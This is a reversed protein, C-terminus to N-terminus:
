TWQSRLSQWRTAYIDQTVLKQLDYRYTICVMVITNMFYKTLMRFETM